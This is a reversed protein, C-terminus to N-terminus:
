TKQMGAIEEVGRALREVEEPTNYVYFSARVTGKQKLVYKIFPIACHHGSRVYVDKEDLRKAVEHFDLGLVNFAAIDTEAKPAYVEVGDIGALSNLTLRGLKTGHAHVNEMGIKKLYECAEGFGMAGCINPTGSEWRAPGDILDWGDLRVDKVIGGGLIPPRLEELLGERVFLGGIGTPALMKHGSFAFFDCGINKMDIEFHPASQAGDIVSLAGNERAIKCIEEVPTRSGIVNSVHGIAVLRAKKDFDRPEFEGNRTPMVVEVKVGLSRLNLWPLFNAHHDLATTVVVDGKRWDISRAAMNIGDTTGRTFVLEDPKANIFHAVRRRAESFREGAELSFKYFGRGVNARCERYYSQVEELVPEPTLSSSSSDLYAGGKGLIPFDARIKEVDM